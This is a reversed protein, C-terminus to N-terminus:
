EDMAEITNLFENKQPRAISKGVITDNAIYFNPSDSLKVKVTKYGILGSDDIFFLSNTPIKVDSDVEITVVVEGTQLLKLRSVEGVNVGNCKVKSGIELGEVNEFVLNLSTSGNQCSIIIQFVLLFVLVQRM